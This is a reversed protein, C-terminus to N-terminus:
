LTLIIELINFLKLYNYELYKIATRFSKIYAYLTEFRLPTFAQEFIDLIKHCDKHINVCSWAGFAICTIPFVVWSAIKLAGSIAIRGAVAGVELGVEAATAGATPLAKLVIGGIEGAGRLVAGTNRGVNIVEEEIKLDIHSEELKINESREDLDERTYNLEEEFITIKNDNTKDVGNIQNKNNKTNLNEKVFKEAKEYDFGYLYKLKEKFKKRYFYEM